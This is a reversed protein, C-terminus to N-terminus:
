YTDVGLEHKLALRVVTRVADEDIKRLGWSRNSLLRLGADDLESVIPAVNGRLYLGQTAVHM